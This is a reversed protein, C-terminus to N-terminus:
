AAAQEATASPQLLQRLRRIQAETLPPAEDVLRRIYEAREAATM